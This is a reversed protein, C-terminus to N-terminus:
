QEPSWVRADHEIMWQVYEDGATAWGKVGDVLVLSKM